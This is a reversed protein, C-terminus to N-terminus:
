IRSCHKVAALVKMLPNRPTKVGCCSKNVVPCREITESQSCVSRCARKNDALTRYPSVDITTAYSHPLSSTVINSTDKAKVSRKLVPGGNSQKHKKNNTQYIPDKHKTASVM